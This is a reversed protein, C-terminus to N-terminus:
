DGCLSKALDKKRNFAYDRRASRVYGKFATWDWVCATAAGPDEEPEKEVSLTADEKVGNALGAGWM